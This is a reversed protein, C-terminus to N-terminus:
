VVPNKSEHVDSDLNAIIYLIECHAETAVHICLCFRIKKIDFMAHFIDHAMRMFGEYVLSLFKIYSVFAGM